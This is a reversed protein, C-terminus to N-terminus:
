IETQGKVPLTFSFKSGKGLESEVWIKGGHKEVIGRSITLGLGTGKATEQSGLSTVQYFKEFVKNLDQKPIGLGTDIVDVQIFEGFKFVKVTIEGGSPTFKVANGVLNTIVQTIKDADAEISEVGPTFHTTLRLNKGATIEQFLLVAEKILLTIDLIRKNLEIRGAEIRSVDLLDAILRSLRDVNRKILLICDNQTFSLGGGIGVLLNSVAAKMATLPTRLEHSVLSIFDNKMQDIEREKTVDRFVMVTGLSKEAEDQICSAEARVIHPYPSAMYIEKVWIRKTEKKIEDLSSILGFNKFFDLLLDVNWEKEECNLMYKAAANLIVLRDREDFMVVGESMGEVMMRMKSKEASLVAQLRDIAIQAQSALTYFLKIEGDSYSVDRVSSVNLIGVAGNATFLPVDLSAKITELQRSDDFIEGQIDETIEEELIPNKRLTSLADIVKRKTDKVTQRSVPHAIRILMKTKREEELVILSTCIDYDIIKYLSGIVFQFFDDYNLTYSINNSIDYLISLEFLHQKLEQSLLQNEERLKEIEINRM